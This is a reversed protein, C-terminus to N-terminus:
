RRELKVTMNFTLGANKHFIKKSPGRLTSGHVNKLNGLRRGEVDRSDTHYSIAPPVTGRRGAAKGTIQKEGWQGFELQTNKNKGLSLSWLLTLAGDQASTRGLSSVARAARM